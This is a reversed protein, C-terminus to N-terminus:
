AFVRASDGRRHCGVSDRRALAAEAILRSVTHLNTAEVTALDLMTSADAVPQASLVRLLERLGDEDRLVGAYRSMARAMAPRASAAVGVGTTAVSM